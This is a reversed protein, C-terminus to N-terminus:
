PWHQVSVLNGTLVRLSAPREISDQFIVFNCGAKGLARAADSPYRIAAFRKQRAVAAGLSQTKTPVLSFRWPAHLDTPALNLAILTEPETLDLFPMKADAFYTTFPVPDFASAKQYREYELIATELNESFYVCQVPQPNYRNPKGSAYLFAPPQNSELADREVCRALRREVANPTLGALIQLFAEIQPM